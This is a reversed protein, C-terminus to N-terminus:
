VNAFVLPSLRRFHGLRRLKQKSTSASMAPLKLEQSRCVCPWVSVFNLTERVCNDQCEPKRRRVSRKTLLFVHRVGRLGHLCDFCHIRYLREFEINWGHGHKRPQLWCILIQNSGGSLHLVYKLTTPQWFIYGIENHINTKIWMM